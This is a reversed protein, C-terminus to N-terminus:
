STSPQLRTRRGVRLHRARDFALLSSQRGAIDRLPCAERYTSSCRRSCQIHLEVDCVARRVGTKRADDDDLLRELVADLDDLRFCTGGATSSRAVSGSICPEGQMACRIRAMATSIARLRPSPSRVAPRGRSAFQIREM